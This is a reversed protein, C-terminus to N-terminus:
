GHVRECFQILFKDPMRERLHAVPQAAFRQDDDLAFARHQAIHPAAFEEVGVGRDPRVQVAVPMGLDVRGNGPLQFFDRM